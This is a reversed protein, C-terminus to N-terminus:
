ILICFVDSLTQKNAVVTFCQWRTKLTIECAAVSERIGLTSTHNGYSRQLRRLKLSRQQKKM